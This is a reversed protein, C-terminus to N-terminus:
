FVPRIAGTLKHINLTAVLNGDDDKVSVVYSQGDFSVEGVQLNTDITSIYNATIEEAEEPSVLGNSTRYQNGQSGCAMASIPMAFLAIAVLPTILLKKM